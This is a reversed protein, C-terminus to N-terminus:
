AAFMRGVPDGAIIRHGVFLPGDEFALEALAEIGVHCLGFGGYYDVLQKAILTLKSTAARPMRADAGKGEVACGGAISASSGRMRVRTMHPMWAAVRKESGAFRTMAM